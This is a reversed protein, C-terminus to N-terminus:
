KELYPSWPYGERLRERYDEAAKENGRDEEIAALLYLAQDAYESDPNAEVLPLLERVARDPSKMLIMAKASVIRHLGTYRDTPAEREWKELARLARGPRRAEIHTLATRAAAAKRLIRRVNETGGALEEAKGYAVRAGAGDGGLMRADGIRLWALRRLSRKRAAKEGVIGTLIEHAEIHDGGLRIMADALSIKARFEDTDKSASGIANRFATAARALDGPGEVIRRGLDMAFGYEEAESLLTSTRVAVSLLRLAADKMEAQDLLYVARGLSKPALRNGPYTAVVRAMRALMPDRNRDFRTWEGPIRITRVVTDEAGDDRVTLRVRYLGGELYVHWADAGKAHVGDGFHWEYRPQKGSRQAAFTMGTYVRGDRGWKGAPVVTFDAAIKKGHIEHTLVEVTRHAPFASTPIVVAKKAGPALWYAAMVQSGTREVHVYRFPHFGEALKVTGKFRAWAGQGAGHWGPSQAVLRDGVFLFSAEDSATYFVWKGAKPIRIFGRYESVFNDSPGFPNMADYVRGWTAGGHLTTSRSLIQEMAPWNVPNGAGRTRTELVLGREPAYSKRQPKAEPNGHYVFWETKGAVPWVIEVADGPGRAVVAHPVEHGDPTVVRLDALDERVRGGTGFRLRASPSDKWRQDESLRVHKRIPWKRDWWRAPAASAPATGLCLLVFVVAHVRM